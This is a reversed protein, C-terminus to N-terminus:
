TSRVELVFLLPVKKLEVYTKTHPLEPASYAKLIRYAEAGIGSLLFAVTRANKVPDTEASIVADQISVWMEFRELWEEVGNNVDMEELGNRTAM